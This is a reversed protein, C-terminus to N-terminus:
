FSPIPLSLSLFPFYSPLAALGLGPLHSSTVPMFHRVLPNLLYWAAKILQKNGPFLSFVLWFNPTGLLQHNKAQCFQNPTQFLLDGSAAAASLSRTNTATVVTM